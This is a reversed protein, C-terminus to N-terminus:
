EPKVAEGQEASAFIADILGMTELLHEPTVWPEAGNRITDHFSLFLSDWEQPVVEHETEGDETAVVVPDRGQTQKLLTGNNGIIYWRPLSLRANSSAEITSTTGDEYRIVAKFHDDVEESWVRSQLDGYVSAIPKPIMRLVQDGLHSAYDYVMGGGHQKQVRWRPNFEEVGWTAWGPSWGMWRSECAYISGLVGSEVVKKVTLYDADFRRNQHGAVMVCAEKAAAVIERAEALSMAFPKEVLAHKGAGIAALTMDRHLNPPTAVIVLEVAPDALMDDYNEYTGKAGYTDRAVALREASQDCAAALEFKDSFKQIRKCHQSESVKGMGVIGIGLKQSM